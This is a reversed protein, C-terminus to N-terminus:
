GRRRRGRGRGRNPPEWNRIDEVTVDMAKAEQEVFNEYYDGMRMNFEPDVHNHRQKLWPLLELICGLLPVLRPDDGGGIREKMEIYYVGIARALQLHDYGAWGVVLTQDEGECHPFSVWREKPVDLKGRLRWYSSKQFDSSKYKPPVPIDGVQRRKEARAQDETLHQPDDEPLGPRADIADELRQLEWTREWARRKDMAAPKYRLVPLCPVSEDEVLEAVLRGVDFDKRGRYLEAMRMFDADRAAVDALRATSILKMGLQATPKGEDNMRGDFDFYSELRDVLWSKLARVLQSDWPEINWRRKYEPQEILRINRDSEILEIRREVLRKYDDPWHDPISPTPTSGHRRFWTTELKGAAMKRAMVIEFARQGLQITFFNETKLECHDIQEGAESVVSSQCSVLEEEILGYLQYCQWDLDEQLRIMEGRILTSATQAKSLVGRLSNSVTADVQEQWHCISAFPELASLRQACDDAKQADRLPKQRPLPLRQLKTGNVTYFREWAEAAIGGGIGGGGKCHCVQKLWFCTVSSNLCGILNLYNGTTATPKMKIIPASTKFIRQKRDLVFQNHTGVEPFVITLPTRMASVSLLGYEFWRLGREDHTKRFWLRHRLGTRLPWLVKQGCDSLSPEFTDREYPFVAYLSGDVQWDRVRDGEIFVILESVPIGKRCWSHRDAVYADDELTVVGIATEAEGSLQSDGAEDLLEKLESAGGGGISWPHSYFSERGTDSVSVFESQSGPEDIQQIIAQWVLGRAPDKPEGDERKIAGVTRVERAVPDRNRGFLVVTPIGHGPIHALQTDIVHTLDVTQFFEEILKKGFERKMFSNATIQGTYGAGRGDGEARVALRFIREMFPVALSYKGHCASYLRRYANNAARDKPTIYPPNAVVCHFGGVSLIRRIDEVHETRFYHSEDTWDGLLQQREAGHYLSDGCALNMRFAPADALRSVACARLAALLLRFRAIAVAYPNLDVGHVSGLARQVLERQNTGPEAKCWRDFLRHFSGFLFHGSGCAPDIMRFGDLGFEEIAPDLTRDLIFEEVFEPTQLLAYKKRAAESLDQYLDGLLRTDWEPDTFDHVLEGLEPEIRQFFNVLERAADGSLWGRQQHIPNHEGFVDRGGPMQGLGDFVDLLYERDTETPHQRFYLEHEDRARRLREDPGSLRPPGVLQNDELFRAFVCSLVWAAAIQTIYGALWEEFSQATREAERAADYEARVASRVEAVEDCRQRLDAELQRLLRQLDSLLAQRGIM